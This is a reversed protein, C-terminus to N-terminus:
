FIIHVGGNDHVLAFTLLYDGGLITVYGRNNTGKFPSLYYYWNDSKLYNNSIEDQESGFSNGRCIARVNVYNQFQVGGPSYCWWSGISGGPNMNILGAVDGKYDYSSITFYSKQTFLYFRYNDDEVPTNFGRSM